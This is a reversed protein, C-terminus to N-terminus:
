SFILGLIGVRKLLVGKIKPGHKPCIGFYVGQKPCLPWFVMGQCATCGRILWILSYRGGGRLNQTVLLYSLNITTSNMTPLAVPM